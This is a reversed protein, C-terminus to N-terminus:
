ANPFEVETAAPWWPRLASIVEGPTFGDYWHVHITTGRLSASATSEPDDKDRLRVSRRESRRAGQQPMYLINRKMM